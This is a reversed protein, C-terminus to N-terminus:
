NAGTTSRRESHCRRGLLMLRQRELGRQWTASVLITGVWIFMIRWHRLWYLLLWVQWDDHTTTTIHHTTSHPHLLNTTHHNTPRCTTPPTSFRALLEQLTVSIKTYVEVYIWLLLTICYIYRKETILLLNNHAHNGIYRLLPKCGRVLRAFIVM